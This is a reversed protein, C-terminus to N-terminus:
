AATKVKEPEAERTKRKALMMAVAGGGVASCVAFAGLLVYLKTDRAKKEQEALARKADEAGQRAALVAASPQWSVKLTGEVTKPTFTSFVNSLVVYYTGSEPLRARVDAATVQGSNYIPRVTHNNKWNSYDSETLVLVQIDNGAGGSATVHGSITPDAMVSMDAKVSWGTSNLPQVVTSGNLITISGADPDDARTPHPALLTMSIIALATAARHVRM